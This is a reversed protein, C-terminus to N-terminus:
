WKIATYGREYMIFAIAAVMIFSFYYSIGIGSFYSIAVETGILPLLRISYRLLTYYIFYYLVFGIIGFKILMLWLSSVFFTETEGFTRIGEFLSRHEQVYDQINSANIGVVLEAPNIHTVLYPGNAMRSNQSADTREIKEKTASFEEMNTLGYGIGCLLLAILLTAGKNKVNLLMYLVLLSICSAVGTTSTSLLVCIVAAGYWIYKKESLLFFLPIIMFQAYAAPETFFSMPRIHLMDARNMELISSIVPIPIPSIFNGSLVMRFQYIIGFSVILGVIYTARKFKEFDIAPAAIIITFMFVIMNILNNIHSMQFSTMTACLVIEHVIVYAVFIHYYKPCWKEQRRLFCILSVMACMFMDMHIPGLGYSSLIPTLALLLEASGLHFYKIISSFKIM